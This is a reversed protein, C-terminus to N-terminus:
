IYIHALCLLLYLYPANLKMLDMTLWLPSRILWEVDDRFYEGLEQAVGALV